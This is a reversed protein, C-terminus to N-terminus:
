STPLSDQPDYISVAQKVLGDYLKRAHHGCFLLTGTLFSARVLAAAGCSDCRDTALLEPETIVVTDADM